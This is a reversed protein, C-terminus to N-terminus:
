RRARPKASRRASGNVGRSRPREVAVVRDGPKLGAAAAPSKAIVSQSTPTLVAVPLGYLAVASLIVFCAIVNAIPGATIM